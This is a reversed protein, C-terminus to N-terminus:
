WTFRTFRTFPLGTLGPLGPLGPLSPLGPLGQYLSKKTQVLWAYCQWVMSTGTGFTNRVEV